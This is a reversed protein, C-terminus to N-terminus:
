NPNASTAALWNYWLACIMFCLESLGYHDAPAQYTQRSWLTGWLGYGFYSLRESSPLPAWTPEPPTSQHPVSAASSPLHCWKPRIPRLKSYPEWVLNPIRPMPLVPASTVASVSVAMAAAQTSTFFVVLCELFYTLALFFTAASGCYSPHTSALQSSYPEALPTLSHLKLGIPRNRPATELSAMQFNIPRNRRAAQPQCSQIREKYTGQLGPRCVSCRRRGIQAVKLSQIMWPAERNQKQWTNTTWIM